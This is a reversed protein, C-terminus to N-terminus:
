VTINILSGRPLNRRPATETAGHDAGVAVVRKQAVRAAESAPPTAAQPKASTSESRTGTVAGSSPPLPGGQGIQM